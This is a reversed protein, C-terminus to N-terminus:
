PRSGAGTTAGRSALVFRDPPPTPAIREIVHSDAATPAVLHLDGIAIQEIRRPSKLTEIELRLHRNTRLAQTRERDM